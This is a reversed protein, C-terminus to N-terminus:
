AGGRFERRLREIVKGIRNKRRRVEIRCEQAPLHLLGWLRAYEETSRVGDLMMVAAEWDQANTLKERLRRLFARGAEATLGEPLNSTEQQDNGAVASLDVPDLAARRSGHRQERAILNLVNRRAAMRLYGLIGMRAPNYRDATEIFELVADTAADWVMHQDYVGAPVWRRDQALRPLYSDCFEEAAVPDRRRLRQLLDPDIPHSASM